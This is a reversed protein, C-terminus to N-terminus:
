RQRPTSRGSSPVGMPVPPPEVNRRSAKLSWSVAPPNQSGRLVPVEYELALIQGEGAPLRGREDAENPEIESVSAGPRSAAVGRGGREGLQLNWSPTLIGATIGIAGPRQRQGPRRARAPRLAPQRM